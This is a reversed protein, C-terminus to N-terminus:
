VVFFSYIIIKVGLPTFRQCNQGMIASYIPDFYLYTKM